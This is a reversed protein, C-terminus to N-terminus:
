LYPDDTNLYGAVYDTVGEELPTFPADYGAKRLREMAAQTHYQYRPRLSEPMEVYEIPAPRGMAAVTADALARFTRAAGTGLNYLGRVEPHDLLWVMVQVCDKVYVFDRRQAGDPIGARYSKFLKVVGERRAQGFAHYVVSAMAGKHYEGPGYVNFFKLGVWQAPANGRAARAVAWRDFLHKSFGYANLPRLQGLGGEDDDYGRTGDGYTAASSAYILRGGHEAAWAWLAKSYAFNVRMLHEVDMETTTSCAGMHFIAEVESGHGQLWEPFADRHMYDAIARKTLNRWKETSGLNDVVLIDTRGTENLAWILASGIFGAGGTVVIV